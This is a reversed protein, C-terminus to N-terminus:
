LEEFYIKCNSKEGKSTLGKCDDLSFKLNQVDELILPAHEWVDYVPQRHYLTAFVDPSQGSQKVSGDPFNWIFDIHQPFTDMRESTFKLIRIKNKGTYDKLFVEKQEESNISITKM